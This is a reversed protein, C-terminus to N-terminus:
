FHFNVYLISWILLETFKKRYKISKYLVLIQKRTDETAVEYCKRLYIVNPVDYGFHNIRDVRRLLRRNIIKSRWMDEVEKWTDEEDGTWRKIMWSGSGNKKITNSDRVKLLTDIKIEDNYMTEDWSLLNVKKSLFSTLMTPFIDYCNVLENSLNFFIKLLNEFMENKDVGSWMISNTVYGYYQKFFWCKYRSVYNYFDTFNDGIELSVDIYLGSNRSLKYIRWVDSCFAYVKKEFSNRYYSFESMLYDHEDQTPGIEVQFGMKELKNKISQVKSNPDGLWFMYIKKDSSM